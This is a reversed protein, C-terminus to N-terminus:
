RGSTSALFGATPSTSLPPRNRQRAQVVVRRAAAARTAPSSRHLAYHPSQAPAAHAVASRLQLHHAVLPPPAPEADVGVEDGHLVALCADATRLEHVGLLLM